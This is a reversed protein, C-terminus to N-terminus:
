IAKAAGENREIIKLAEIYEESEIDLKDKYYNLMNEKIDCKHPLFGKKTQIYTTYEPLTYKLEQIFKYSDNISPFIREKGPRNEHAASGNCHSLKEIYESKIQVEFSYDPKDVFEFKMHNAEYGNTKKKYKVSYPMIRMGCKQLLEQNTCLDKIFEKALEVTCRNNYISKAEDTSAEKKKELLWKIRENDTKFDDNFDTIIIKMGRLDKSRLYYQENHLINIRRKTKRIDEISSYRIIDKEPMKSLIAAKQGYKRDLMELIEDKNNINSKEIKSVLIRLLATKTSTSLEDIVINSIDEEICIEEVPKYIINQISKLIEQQNEIPKEYIREELLNYIELKEKESIGEIAYLKSLREIQLKKIKNLISKPSKERAKPVDIIVGPYKRSFYNLISIIAKDTMDEYEKNAKLGLQKEYSIQMADKHVKYKGCFSDHM